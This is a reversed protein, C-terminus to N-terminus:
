TSLSLLHAIGSPFDRFGTGEGAKTFFKEQIEEFMALPTEAEIEADKPVISHGQSWNGRTQMLHTNSSDKQSPPSVLPKAKKQNRPDM